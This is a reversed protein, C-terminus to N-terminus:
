FFPHTLVGLPDYAEGMVVRVTGLIEALTAYQKSAEVMVQILNEKEGTEAKSKLDLLARKVHKENRTKKLGSVREIQRVASSPAVRHVTRLRTEEDTRFANLGVVIRENGEVERQYQLAAEDFQADLWGTELAEKMGGVAEVRDMLAVIEQEMQDTLSEVYYSGGLPDAVTAVGTEYALIQQTRMALRVSEESPLSIPEDYSCCHLSQVGGLVAALAEYAVRISNNEPQHPVLSCGATHVGFKFQWSKPDKAGFREKMLRAWIRRAARYKAIEEFFDIQASCYFAFRPAFSDISLGRALTGEIYLLAMSFGFAVEQPATLGQERLDYMNVNVPYWRPMRLSCYEIVDVATKLALNLPSSIAFGAYRCHVPDNQTTGALNEPRLGNKEALALYQSLAVPTQTSSVILSMSVKEMPIGQMLLEMDQLSCMPVGQLGVDDVARPHDSDLGMISPNDPIVNLGGVGEAMLFRCRENTEEPTGYGCVERLTWLRGRFMDAHIGRTYPFQGPDAVDREYHIKSTDDPGYVNKLPLGSWTKRVSAREQYSKLSKEDEIHSSM